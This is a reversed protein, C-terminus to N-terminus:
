LMSEFEVIELIVQKLRKNSLSGPQYREELGVRELSTNFFDIIKPKNWQKLTTLPSLVNYEPVFSWGEGTSDIVVYSNNKAFFSQEYLLDIRQNDWASVVRGDTEILLPYKPERFLYRVM